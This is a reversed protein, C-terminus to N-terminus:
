DKLPQESWFPANPIAIFERSEEQDEQLELMLSLWIRRTSTPRPNSGAKRREGPDLPEQERRARSGFIM